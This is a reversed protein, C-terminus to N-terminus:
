RHQAGLTAFAGLMASVADPDFVVGLATAYAEINTRAAETPAAPHGLGAVPWAAFLADQQLREAELEIAKVRQRLAAVAPAEFGQPCDRLYRRVGRLPVVVAHRWPDIRAIIAAVDAAALGRGCSAAYLTFLLINVDIGSADQLNLCAPPVGDCRYLRLSFTWFPSSAQEQGGDMQPEGM